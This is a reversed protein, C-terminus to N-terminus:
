AALRGCEPAPVGLGFRSFVADVEAAGLSDFPRQKLKALVDIATARYGAQDYGEEVPWFYPHPFLFLHAAVEDAENRFQLPSAIAVRVNAALRGKGRAMGVVRSWYSCGLLLIDVPCDASAMEAYEVLRDFGTSVWPKRDVQKGKSNTYTGPYVDSANAFRLQEPDALMRVKRGSSAKDCWAVSVGDVKASHRSPAIGMIINM